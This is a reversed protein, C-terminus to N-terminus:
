FLIPVLTVRCRREIIARTGRAPASRSAPTPRSRSRRSRAMAHAVVATTKAAATRTAKPKSGRGDYAFPEAVVHLERREEVPREGEPGVPRPAAPVRRERRARLRQRRPEGLAVAPAVPERTAVGAVSRQLGGAPSEGSHACRISRTAGDPRSQPRTVIRSGPAAHVVPASSWPQSPVTTCCDPASAHVNRQHGRSSARQAEFHAAGRADKAPPTSTGIKPPHPDSRRESRVENIAPRAAPHPRPPPEGAGGGSSPPEPPPPPPPPDPSPPLAPPDPPSPPPPSTGGPPPPPSPPPPPPAYGCVAVTATSRRSALPSHSARRGM